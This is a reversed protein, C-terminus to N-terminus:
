KSTKVAVYEIVRGNIKGQNIKVYRYELKDGIQLNESKLGEPIWLSKKDSKDDKLVIVRAEKSGVENQFVIKEIKGSGSGVNNSDVIDKLLIIASSLVFLTGLIVSMKVYIKQSHIHKIVNRVPQYKVIYGDNDFVWVCSMAFILILMPYVWGNGLIKSFDSNLGSYIAQIALILIALIAILGWVISLNSIKKM